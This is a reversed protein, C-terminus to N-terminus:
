MAGEHKLVVEVTKCLIKVDLGLSWNAIYSRDFAVVQEFDLKFMMGESVRNESALQAKREEADLYM